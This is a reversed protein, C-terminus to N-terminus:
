DATDPPPYLKRYEVAQLGVIAAMAAMNDSSVGLPIDVAPRTFGM